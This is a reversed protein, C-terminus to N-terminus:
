WIACRRAPPRYMPDGPKVHFALDFTAADAVTGDVRYRAIPHPDGLIQAREAQPRQNERWLEAYALYFRQEASFGGLPEPRGSKLFAAEMARYSLTLGGLDATAEGADLQGNLRPGVSSKYAHLQNVICAVRAHFRAADAKTVIPNLNGDGDFDSGEDDYGHTMEHGIVVGIGGFNVADDAEPDFFPKELIGAPVVIENMSPDYYANVTQPTLGWESRDLPKGIKQADRIFAFRNAALVDGLFNGREIHLSSYDRWRSPYGVKLTGLKALKRLAATRTRPSM